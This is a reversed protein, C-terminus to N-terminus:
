NGKPSKRGSLKRIERVLDAMLPAPQGHLHLSLGRLFERQFRNLHDFVNEPSDEVRLGFGCAEKRLVTSNVAMLIAEGTAGGDIKQAETLLKGYDMDPFREFLWLLDFLDKEGCRSVLTAAKMRLITELGAVRLNKGPTHFLGERFLNEDLVVDVTFSRGDMSCILKAFRATHFEDSFGAGLGSLSHVARWTADHSATDPVFLDLDDSRRHGAYFGSLATGGVLATGPLGGSFVHVLAKFLAPPLVKEALDIRPRESTEMHREM